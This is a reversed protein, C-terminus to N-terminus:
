FHSLFLVIPGMVRQLALEAISRATTYKVGEMSLFGIVGPIGSIKPSKRPLQSGKNQSPLRGALVRSIDSVALELNPVASNVDRLFTTLERDSPECGRSSPPLHATGIMMRPSGAESGGPFPVCFYTNKNSNVAVAETALPPREVVVNFARAMQIRYGAAGNSPQSDKRGVGLKEAFQRELDSAHPGACNIVSKSAIHVERGTVCCRALLGQVRNASVDLGEARVYNVAKGGASAAWRLVEMLLRQPSSMVCDFWFAAGRLGETQVRPYRDLTEDATLIRSKGLEVGFRRRIPTAMADNMKLAARLVNTRRLGRNYLPMLCPLPHVLDPFNQVWWAQESVSRYFRRLNVNQLYRLGGHIIRLSNWSTEGGFDESEILVCKLGRRSAELLTCAGYIGGGIIAVDFHDNALQDLDREITIM